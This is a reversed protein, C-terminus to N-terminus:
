PITRNMSHCRSASADVDAFHTHVFPDEGNARIEALMSQVNAEATTLTVLPLDNDSPIRTQRELFMDVHPM